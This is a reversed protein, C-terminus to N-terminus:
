MASREAGAHTMGPVPKRGLEALCIACSQQHDTLARYKKELADLGVDIPGGKDFKGSEGWELFIRQYAKRLRQYEPCLNSMTFVEAESM